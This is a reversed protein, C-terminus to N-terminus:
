TRTYTPPTPEAIPLVTRDLQEQASVTTGAIILALGLVALPTVRKMHKERERHMSHLNTTDSVEGPRLRGAEWSQDFWPQLPGDLRLMTNEGKGPMTRERASGHPGDFLCIDLRTGYGLPWPSAPAM